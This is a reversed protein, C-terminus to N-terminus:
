LPDLPVNPGGAADDNAALRAIVYALLPLDPRAPDKLASFLTASDVEAERALWETGQALAVAAFVRTIAPVNGSQLADKLALLQSPRDSLYEGASRLDAEITMGAAHVAELDRDRLLVPIM